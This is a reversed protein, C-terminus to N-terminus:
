FTFKGSSFMTDEYILHTDLEPLYQSLVNEGLKLFGVVDLAM